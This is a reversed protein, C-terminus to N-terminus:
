SGYGAAGQRGRQLARQHDTIGQQRLVPALAGAVEQGIEAATLQPAGHASSSASTNRQSMSAGVPSASRKGISGSNIAELLPGYQKAAFANVTFEGTSNWVLQDDATPGGRGGVWGGFAQADLREQRTLPAGKKQVSNNQKGHASSLISVQADFQEATIQVVWPSGTLIALQQGLQNITDNLQNFGIAQVSTSLDSPVAFYAGALNKAETTTIGLAKANKVLAGGTMSEFTAQADKLAASDGKTAVEHQYQATAASEAATQMAQLQQVLPAAGASNYDILGTKANIAAKESLDFGTILGDLATKGGAMAGVFSLADGQSDVLISGLLKAKDASTGASKNFTDLASYADMLATNGSSLSSAYKGVNAGFGDAEAAAIETQEATARMQANNKSAAERDALYADASLGLAAAQGLYAGSTLDAALKSDGLTKAYAAVAANAKDYNAQAQALAAPLKALAAEQAQVADVAKQEVPGGTGRTKLVAGQLSGLLTTQAAIQNNVNAVAAGSNEVAAVLTNADIGLQGGAKLAGSALLQNYITAAGSGNEMATTLDDIRKQNEIAADSNHGLISSFIGFAAGAALGIPGLFSVAKGLKGAYESATSAASGLLGVKVAPGEVGEALAHSSTATKTLSGALNALGASANNITASFTSGLKLGALLPLLTELVGVPIANIATSLLRVSTLVTSGFPEFGQALHSVTTVLEDATQEVEPLKTIVYAVFTSVGTSTQAWHEFSASGKDLSQGTTLFLPNLQTFLAVLGAGTHGTIDGLQGSLLKVDTTVQPMLTQVDSIGKSIGNFVGVAAVKELSNLDNKLTTIQATYAQGIPTGQTMATKIGEIALVAVGASGILGGFAGIGVGALPIAAAGGTVIATSLLNLDDVQKKIDKSAQTTDANVKVTVKKHDLEDARMEVDDFKVLAAGVDADVVPKIKRNQFKDADAAAQRLGETFASRDLELRGEISGANFDAM